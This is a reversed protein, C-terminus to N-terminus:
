QIVTHVRKNERRLTVNGGRQRVGGRDVCCTARTSCCAARQPQHRHKSRTVSEAEAESGVPTKIADSVQRELVVQAISRQERLRVARTLVHM